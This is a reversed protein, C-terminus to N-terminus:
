NAHRDYFLLVCASSSSPKMKCQYWEETYVIYLMISYRAVDYLWWTCRALNFLNSDRYLTCVHLMTECVCIRIFKSLKRCPRVSTCTSVCVCVCVLAEFCEVRVHIDGGVGLQCGSICTYDCNLSLQPLMFLIHFEFYTVM